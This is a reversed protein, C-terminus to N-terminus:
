AYVDNRGMVRTHWWTEGNEVEAAECAALCCGRARTCAVLDIVGTECVGVSSSREGLWILAGMLVKGATMSM